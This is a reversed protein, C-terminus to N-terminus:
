RNRTVLLIGYTDCCQLMQVRRNTSDTTTEYNRRKDQTGCRMQAWIFGTEAAGAPRPESDSTLTPRTPPYWLKSSCVAVTKLTYNDIAATHEDSVNTGVYWVICPARPLTTPQPVLSCVPLDRSRAGTLHIKELKGLGEPRV